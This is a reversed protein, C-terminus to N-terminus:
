LKSKHNLVVFKIVAPLRLKFCYRRLERTVINFPAIEATFAHKHPIPATPVLICSVFIRYIVVFIEATFADTFADKYSASAAPILMCSVSLSFLVVAIEATLDPKHFALAALILM